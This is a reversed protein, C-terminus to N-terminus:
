QRLSSRAAAYAALTQAAVSAWDFRMLDPRPGAMRQWLDTDTALRIAARAMEADSECLFGDDGDAIFGCLGTGARGIVPLGSARAELAAIGFSEHISPMVFVHAVRYANRLEAPALWGPARVEPGLRAVLPGAGAVTLSVPQGTAQQVAKCLKPLIQPRKKRVLRMASVMHFGAPPTPRTQAAWFGSDFGNPLVQPMAGPVLAALQRAIRESVASLLVGGGPPALLRRLPRFLPAFGALDSHFTVVVPLGLRQAAVLGALCGPAIISAHIHVVDPAVGELAKAMTGALFPSVALDLGPLRFNRAEIVPFSGSSAGPQTTIATVEAGAAALARGLGRLHSEIGGQRPAFWDSVFAVKPPPAFSTGERHM